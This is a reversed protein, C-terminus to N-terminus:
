RGLELKVLALVVLVFVAVLVAPPGFIIAPLVGVLVVVAVVFLLIPMGFLIVPLITPLLLTAVIILLATGIIAFTIAMPLLFPFKLIIALISQIM